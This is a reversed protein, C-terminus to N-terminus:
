LRINHLLHGTFATDHARSPPLVWNLLGNIYICSCRRYVCQSRVATADSMRIRSRGTTFNHKPKKAMSFFLNDREDSSRKEHYAGYGYGYVDEACPNKFVTFVVIRNVTSNCNDDATSRNFANETTRKRATQSTAGGDHFRFRQYQGRRLLQGLYEPVQARGLFLKAGVHFDDGVPHAFLGM